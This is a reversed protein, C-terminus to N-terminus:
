CVDYVICLMQQEAPLIYLFLTLTRQKFSLQESLFLNGIFLRILPYSLVRKFSINM